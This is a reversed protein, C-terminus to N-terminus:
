VYLIFCMEEDEVQGSSNVKWFCGISTGYVWHKDKELCWMYLKSFFYPHFWVFNSQINMCGM